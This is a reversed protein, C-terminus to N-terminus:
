EPKTALEELAAVIEAKSSPTKEGLLKSAASKFAMFNGDAMALVETASKTDGAGDDKKASGKGFEFWGTAKAVKLEADSLDAEISHGPDVLVPGEKTNVGRPGKEINTIKM